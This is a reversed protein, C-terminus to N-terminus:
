YANMSAAIARTNADYLGAIIHQLLNAPNKTIKPDAVPQITVFPTRNRSASLACAATLSLGNGIDSLPKNWDSIYWADIGLDTSNDFGGSPDYVGGLVDM